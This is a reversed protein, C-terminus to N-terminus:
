PANKGRAAYQANQRDDNEKRDDLAFIFENWAAIAIFVSSAVLGNRALPFVIRVMAGLRTSGDIRSASELEKPAADFFGKLM